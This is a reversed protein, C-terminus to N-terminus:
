IDRFIFLFGLYGLRGLMVAQPGGKREGTLGEGSGAM